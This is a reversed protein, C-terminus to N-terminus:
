GLRKRLFALTRDWSLKAAAANYADPRNDEFFWHGTGPYIHVDCELGAAHIGSEMARVGELPEFDDTEAFHGLFAAKCKSFDSGATGYYLVAARVDGPREAALEGARWTGYSFGIIGLGGHPVHTRLRDLGALAVAGALARDHNTVLAEAEPITGATKTGFMNAAVAAFGEAALRDCLRKFYPTLGWWPHLVLVGPAGARGIGAEYGDVQQGTIELTFSKGEAAM